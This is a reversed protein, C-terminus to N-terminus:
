GGILLVSWYIVMGIPAEPIRIPFSPISHESSITPNFQNFRKMGFYQTAWETWCMGGHGELTVSFLYFYIDLFDLVRKMCYAVGYSGADVIGVISYTIYM